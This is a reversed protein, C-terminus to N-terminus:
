KKNEVVEFLDFYMRDENKNSKKFNLINLGDKSIFVMGSGNTYKPMIYEGVKKLKEDLIIITYNKFGRILEDNADINENSVPLEALRYYLNRYKDYFIGAYSPSQRFFRDSNQFAIKFPNTSMPEIDDFLYSGAYFKADNNETNTYIYNDIPFSYYFHNTNENYTRYCQYLNPSGFFGKQYTIPRTTNQLWNQTNLDLIVSQFNDSYNPSFLKKNIYIPQNRTEFKLNIFDNKTKSPYKYKDIINGNIDVLYLCKNTQSPIFISDFNHVYFGNMVGVGKAGGKQIKLIKYKEKNDYNYIYISNYRENQYAIYNKNNNEFYQLCPTGYDTLTDLSFTICKKLNLTYKNEFKYM